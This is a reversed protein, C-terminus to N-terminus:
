YRDLVRENLNAQAVTSAGKAKAYAKMLDLCARLADREELDMAGDGVAGLRARVAAQTVKGKATTADSLPEDEGANEEVFVVLERGKAEEEAVLREVEGREGWSYRAVVLGPPLLDMKYKIRNVTLDASKGAKGKGGM